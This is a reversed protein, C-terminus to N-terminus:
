DASEFGAGPDFKLVRANETVTRVMNDSFGAASRARVEIVIEIEGESQLNVLIEDALQSFDKVARVPDISVTGHFRTVARPEPPTPDGTQVPTPPPDVVGPDPNVPPTPTESEVQALAADPRVVLSSPNIASALGGVVLGGFRGDILTDAVAFTDTTWTTSSPGISVAEDLVRRDRLKPLYPYQTFVDWLRGVTVSGDAWEPALVTNLQLRLLVPPYQAYLIGEKRLRDSARVALGANGELKHEAM